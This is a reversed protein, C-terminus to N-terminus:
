PMVKRKTLKCQLYDGGVSSTLGSGQQSARELLNRRSTRSLASRLMCVAGCSLLATSHRVASCLVISRQADYAHMCALLQRCPAM